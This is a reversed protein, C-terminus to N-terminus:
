SGWESSGERRPSPLAGVGPAVGPGGYGGLGLPNGGWRAVFGPRCPATPIASVSDQGDTDDEALPPSLLVLGVPQGRSM